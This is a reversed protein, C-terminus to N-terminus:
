KWGNKDPKSLLNSLYVVGYLFPSFIDFILSYPLLAKENLRKQANAYVIIQIILRVTFMALVVPWLTLTALLVIFATYFIIRSAPETNLLIRDRIKYFPATTIHRKKQNMWEPFNSCPVSRTHTEISYEVRTDNKVANSNVFLDDDGSPLQNHAGFGKKRFFLSKRYSMNRGVGMYPFGKIAMGLYQMAIFM